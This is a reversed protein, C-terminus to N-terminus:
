NYNIILQQSFLSDFLQSLTIAFTQTIHSSNRYIPLDNDFVKCYKSDCMEEHPNIIAFPYRERVDEMVDAVFSQREQYDKSAPRLDMDAQRSTLRAVIKPIHWETAPVQAVVAIKKGLGSLTDMTRRFARAFVRKNEELSLEETEKDRIYVTNGMENRYPEGMAYMAWRSIVIVQEIEPHETIYALFAEANQICRDKGQRIQHAGFLSLCGGRGIYVGNKGFRSASSEIAPLLAKAHSDGWVVVTATANVNKGVPCVRFEFGDARRMNKCAMQENTPEDNETALIRNLTPSYRQPLGESVVLVGGCIASILMVGAGVAFLPKQRALLQRSRFPLEIYKWSAWSILGVCVLLFVKELASLPELSYMGYFVLVPWHWLYLSYSILGPFRFLNTSLIRNVACSNNKGAFIILATGVCPLLAASGPFPTTSSYFFVCYLILSLGLFSLLEALRQNIPSKRALISLAAGLLLQWGRSLTSFFADDPFHSVLYISYSASMFILFLVIYARWKNYYRMMAYLFIPFLIYFQEEVSLSWMHLLPMTEAPAAFYGGESMFYYNSSFLATYLLSEGFSELDNPFKIFYAAITSFILVGFLAPFIRRIRREYFRIVSFRDERIDSLLINAILFGSIVFFVDVGVYGGTFLGIDIHFLIVPIVAVGRLGDIDSRYKM